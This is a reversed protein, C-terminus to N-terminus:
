LCERVEEFARVVRADDFGYLLKLTKVTAAKPGRPGAAALAVEAAARGDPSLESLFGAVDFRRRGAPPGAASLSECAQRSVLRRWSAYRVKASLHLSLRGWVWTGVSAGADPNYHRLSDIVLPWCEGLLEEPDLSPWRRAFRRVFRRAAQVGETM